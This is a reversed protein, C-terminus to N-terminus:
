LSINGKGTWHSLRDSSCQEEVQEHMWTACYFNSNDSTINKARALVSMIILFREPQLPFIHSDGSMNRSTVRTLRSWWTIGRERKIQVFPRCREPTFCRLSQLEGFRAAAMVDEGSGEERERDREGEKVCGPVRNGTLHNLYYSKHHLSLTTQMHPHTHTNAPHLPNNCTNLEHPSINSTTPSVYRSCSAPLCM